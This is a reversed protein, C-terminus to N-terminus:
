EGWYKRDLSRYQIAESVHELLIDESQAMDAITRAVKLIRSYARASLQMNRFAQKLMHSGDKDLRAYHEIKRADLQANCFIGDKRYRQRQRARAENVRARVAESSEEERPRSMENFTVETMEVHLDIRDLLPGSVRGVYRQIQFPTCRCAHVRSGYYGCPCPNMATVLMFQAPYSATVNARAITILGDELPQRLAELTEKRFEPFEDLFLVGNHSLSIEGPLAKSSGGVIAATSASHHPARFPRVALLGDHALGAVSHIKTVELSEEMSMDPLISPMSRALLTKGSGPTGILLMNHGGAAAIEAARKAHRQGRIDAFDTEYLASAAEWKQSPQAKMASEDRLFAVVQALTAAPYVSMGDVYAAEKANQEPVVARTFGRSLADIIMPLVGNVPRIQGNLSLEGLFILNEINEPVQRTAALIGVAIPLDYMTGEKKLDAPALNVTIRAVPFDFRSNRIAARVREKSERVAADPLGVTEYAPVMGNSIDIEVEVPLGSIGVLGYSCIQALLLM